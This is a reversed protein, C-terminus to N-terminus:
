FNLKVRMIMYRAPPATPNDYGLDWRTGFNGSLSPNATVEPDPGTYDTWLMLNRASLSVTASSAGLGLPQLAGPQFTYSVSAEAWRTFTGDEQYGAYTLGPKTFAIYQAQSHLSAEPDNRARCSGFNCKNLESFNTQVWGGRYVFLSSLYMRGGLLSITPTFNLMQTPNTNGIFIISDGVQVEDAQLVGDGNDDNWGLVPRDWQGYLPWGEVFKIFRDEPPRLGEALELLKNSNLSGNVNMSFTIGGVSFVEAQVDGEIGMNRVSGVNDLQGTGTIGISRPMARRVLADVSKRYYATAEFQVRSDLLEVDLGTEYETVREPGLGPNGLANLSAGTRSQGNVFVSGFNVAALADTAQPQVGSAGYAFRYRLSNIFSGQPFFGEDSILWSFGAKPYWATKFDKGFNSAGDARMAATLFFRGALDFNQEVYVGAVVSQVNSESARYNAAGNVTQAGPPLDSGYAQAVGQHRRNYQVGFSTRSKVSRNIDFESTSGLDITYLAIDSRIHNRFGTSLAGSTDEGRRLLNDSFQASHDLGVTGRLTLWSRPIWNGNVGTTFRTINSGARTAFLDGPRDGLWWGENDDNYGSGWSGRSFVQNSPIQSQQLTVGTSINIDATENLRATVNGRMTMRRLYNPRRQWDPIEVGGREAQKRAIESESLELYGTENELETAFFYRFREVGGSVQVGLQERHGTGLPASPSDRFASWTTLSDLMCGGAVRVRNECRIAAGDANRGWAFYGEHVDAAQQIVGGETYVSWRAEGPRGRKTRILIVGNAGDTGYLTAASPGKVVDISEIEEPNLDTIAGATWGSSYQGPGIQSGGGTTNEVRVGDVIMLPSNDQSLSNFGRIRIRAASGTMGANSFTMVGPVRGQLLDTVNTIPASTVISDAGITAIVNAISMKQQEGTATVVIGSLAVPATALTFDLTVAAGEGVTVQQSADSYGLRQVTVTREGASVGTLLYRGQATTTVSIRTGEVFVQALDVPAGTDGATVQGTITGGQAQAKLPTLGLAVIPLLACTLLVAFCRTHLIKGM